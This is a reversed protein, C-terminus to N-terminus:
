VNNQTHRHPHKQILKVNSNTSQTCCIVRGLTHTNPLPPFPVDLQFTLSFLFASYLSVGEGMRGQAPVKTKEQRQATVPFNVRGQDQGERSAKPNSSVDHAREPRWSALWLDPVKGSEIITHALEM